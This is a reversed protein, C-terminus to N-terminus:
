WQDLEFHHHLCTKTHINISRGLQVICLMSGKHANKTLKTKILGLFHQMYCDAGSLQPACIYISCHKPLSISNVVISVM